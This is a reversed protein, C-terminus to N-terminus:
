QGIEQLLSIQKKIIEEPIQGPATATGKNPAAYTYPAGFHTALVRTIVGQSGMGFAIIPDFFAYLSMIQAIDKAQQITTVVKAIDAGYAFCDRTIAQLKKSSPTESFHHYSIIVQTKKTRALAILEERFSPPSEIEIDVYNAGAEIAIKLMDLRDAESYTKCPRCTALTQIPMSFLRRIEEGTLEMTDLRIEAFHETELAQLCSQFDLNAYSVCIM